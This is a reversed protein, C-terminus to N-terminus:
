LKKTALQWEKQIAEATQKEAFGLSYQEQLVQPDPQSSVSVYVQWLNYPAKNIHKLTLTIRSLTYWAYCAVHVHLNYVSTHAWM